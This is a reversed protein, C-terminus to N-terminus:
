RIFADMHTSYLKELEEDPVIHQNASNVATPGEYFAGAILPLKAPYNALDGVVYIGPINTQMSADVQITQDKMELGWNGIVGLDIIFGHNVVLDDLALEKREGSETNHITISSLRHGDGHLQEIVSSTVITVSSNKMKTINSEHGSFEDRRYLLTVSKAIPELENAWDIASNGGGSIVVNKDRFTEMERIYYHLNHNKYDEANPLDLEVSRLPGFGAAIIITKTYHQDGRHDTLLFNGNDLREMETAQTDLVITPDFTKGQEILQETLKAGTIAHIGGIDRIVKDPYYYPVKGGLFPLYEIIKTKMERMGSYFATFLGAAGGGIITVDYLELDKRM